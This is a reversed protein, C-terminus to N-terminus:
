GHRVNRLRGTRTPSRYLAIVQEAPTAAPAKQAALWAVAHLRSPSDPGSDARPAADRDCPRQRSNAAIIETIEADDAFEDHHAAPARHLDPV